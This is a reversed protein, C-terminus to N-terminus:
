ERNITRRCLKTNMIVGGWARGEADRPKRDPAWITRTSKPRTYVGGKPNFARPETRNPEHWLEYNHSSTSVNVEVGMLSGMVGHGKRKEM